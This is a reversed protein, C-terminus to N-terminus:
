PRSVLVEKNEWFSMTSWIRIFQSNHLSNYMINVKRSCHTDTYFYQAFRTQKNTQKKKGKSSHISTFLAIGNGKLEPSEPNPCEIKGLPIVTQQIQLRHTAFASLRIVSVLIDAGAKVSLKGLRRASHSALLAKRDVSFAEPLGFCAYCVRTISNKNTQEKTQKSKRNARVTSDIEAVVTKLNHSLYVQSMPRSCNNQPTQQEIPNTMKCNCSARTELCTAHCNYRASLTHAFSAFGKHCPLNNFFVTKQLQRRLRSEEALVCALSCVIRTTIVIIPLARAGFKAEERSTGEGCAIKARMRTHKALFALILAYECGLLYMVIVLFLENLDLKIYQDFNCQRSM